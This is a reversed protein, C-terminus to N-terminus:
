HKTPKQENSIHHKIKKHPNSKIVFLNLLSVDSQKSM